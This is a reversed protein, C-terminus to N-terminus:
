EILGIAYAKINLYEFKYLMFRSTFCFPCMCFLEQIEGRYM